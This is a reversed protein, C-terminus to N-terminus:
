IRDLTQRRSLARGAVLLRLDPMRPLDQRGRLFGFPFFGHRSAQEPEQDDDEWHSGQQSANGEGADLADCPSLLDGLFPQPCDPTLITAAKRHEREEKPITTLARWAQIYVRQGPRAEESKRPKPMPRAM